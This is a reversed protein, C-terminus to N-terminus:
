TSSAVELGIQLCEAHKKKELITNVFMYIGGGDRKALPEAAGM